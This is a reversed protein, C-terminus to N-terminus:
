GGTGSGEARAKSRTGLAAGALAAILKGTISLALAASFLAEAPVFLVMVGLDILAYLGISAAAFALANRDPRRRALWYNFVFFLLPGLLHSSWPAIWKASESYFEQPRGPEIFAAYLAVMPFSAAVTLTLVAAGVGAAKVYDIPRMDGESTSAGAEAKSSVDAPGVM